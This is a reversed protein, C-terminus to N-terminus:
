QTNTYPKALKFTKICKNLKIKEIYEKFEKPLPSPGAWVSKQVMIYEFKKLHWRLWEREAKRETPIDFMVLLNKDPSINKPKTFQELSDIKRTVYKKGYKSLIIGTLEKKIVGKTKLRDITTRISRAPYNRFRPVGFINVTIGKYNMETDWLEKLIEKSISM